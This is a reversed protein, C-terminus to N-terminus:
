KYASWILGCNAVTYGILVMALAHQGQRLFMIAQVAYLASVFWLLAGTM